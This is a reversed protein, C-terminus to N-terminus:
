ARSGLGVAGFGGFGGLFHRVVRLGLGSVSYKTKAIWSDRCIEVWLM